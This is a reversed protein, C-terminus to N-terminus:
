YVLLYYHQDATSENDVSRTSSVGDTAEVAVSSFLVHKSYVM